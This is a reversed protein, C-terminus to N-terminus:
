ESPGFVSPVSPRGTKKWVYYIKKKQAAMLRAPVVHLGRYIISRLPHVSHPTILLPKTLAIFSRATSARLYFLRGHRNTVFPVFSSHFSSLVLDALKVVCMSSRLRVCSTKEPSTPHKPTRPYRCLCGTHTRAAVRCPSTTAWYRCPTPGLLLSPRRVTARATARSDTLSPVNSRSAPTLLQRADTLTPHSEVSSRRLLKELPNSPKPHAFSGSPILFM